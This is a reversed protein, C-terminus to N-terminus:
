SPSPNDQFFLPTLAALGGTAFILVTAATGLGFLGGGGDGGSPPVGPPPAGPCNGITGGAAPDTTGVTASETAVEGKTGKNAVLTVCGAMVLAKVAGTEDFTLVVKTNSSINLRGLPGLEVTASDDAGTEITAGSAIAAGTSASVGNVTVPKNNATTLRGVLQQHLAVKTLSPAPQAFALQVGIQLISYVLLVVITAKVKSRTTTM